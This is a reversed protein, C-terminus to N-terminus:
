FGMTGGEDYDGTITIPWALGNENFRHLNKKIMDLDLRKITFETPLRFLMLLKRYVMFFMIELMRDPLDLDRYLYRLNNYILSGVRDRERRAHYQISKMHLNMTNKIAKGIIREMLKDLRLIKGQFEVEMDTDEDENSELEHYGRMLDMLSSSLELNETENEEYDMDCAWEDDMVFISSFEKSNALIASSEIDHSDVAQNSILEMTERTSYVKINQGNETSTFISHDDLWNLESFLYYVDRMTITEDVIMTMYDKSLNAIVDKFTKYDLGYSNEIINIKYERGILNVSFLIAWKARMQKLTVDMEIKQMTSTGLTFNGLKLQGLNTVSEVSYGKNKFAKLDRLFMNMILTNECEGKLFIRTRVLKRDELIDMMMISAMDCYLYSKFREDDEQIMKTTFFVRESKFNDMIRVDKSYMYTNVLKCAVENTTDSLKIKYIEKTDRAIKASYEAFKDVKMMTVYTTMKKNINEDINVESNDYFVQNPISRSKYLEIINLTASGLDINDTLIEMDDVKTSKRNNKLLNVFSTMPFESHSFRDKILKFIDNCTLLDAKMVNSLSQLAVMTRHGIEKEQQFLIRMLEKEDFTAMKASTYFRMTRIKSHRSVEKRHMSKLMNEMDSTKAMIEEYGIMFDLTCVNNEMTEVSCVFDVFEILTSKVNTNDFSAMEGIASHDRPHIFGGSKTLQLARILSHIAMTEGFEYKRNVSLLYSNMDIDRLNEWKIPSGLMISFKEREAKVLDMNDQSGYFDMKMKKIRKDLRLPLELRFKGTIFDDFLERNTDDVKEEMVVASHLKKYFIKTEKSIKPDFIQIDPGYIMMEVINTVPIFGLHFPISEENCNLTNTIYSIHNNHIKYWRIMNERMIILMNKVTTLYCGNKFARSINSVVSRVAMEPSTLDVVNMSNYVDKVIAMMTRKGNSFLSNFECISPHLATKKWNIHLGALRMINDMVICACTFIPILSNASQARVYGIKTKDDSSLLTTTEYSVVDKTKAFFKKLLHDSYDDIIVHYMNSTYHFMGQGMGSILTVVWDNLEAQRRFWEIDENVESQSMPKKVWKKKLMEPVVIKKNMFSKQTTLFEFKLNDPIDMASTMTMFMEMMMGPAWKSCDANMSFTASVTKDNSNKAKKRKDYMVKQKYDNMGNMQIPVKAKGAALMDKESTSGMYRFFNEMFKAHIRISVSQILIERVNGIQAKSFISFIAEVEKEEWVLRMLNRTQFKEIKRKLTMFSYDREEKEGFKLSKTMFNVSELSSTLMMASDITDNYCKLLVEDVKGKIKEKKFYLNTAAIIVNKDFKFFKDKGKLYDYRDKNNMNGVNMMNEKDELFIKEMKSMKAVIPKMRHDAFGHEKNFLNCYYMEMMIMSFEIEVKPNIISPMYMKDYTPDDMNTKILGDMFITKCKKCMMKCWELQKLKIVCELQSRSEDAVIDDLLKLKNSFITSMGHFLYRNIQLSTSEGRKHSMMMIIPFMIQESLDDFTYRMDTHSEKLTDMMQSYLALARSHVTSLHMIDASTIALWKTSSMNTDHIPYFKHFMSSMSEHTNHNIIIKFNISKDKTLKSGARIVLWYGEYEKMVTYKGKNEESYRRESLYCINEMLDRTTCLAEYLKTTRFRDARYSEFGNPLKLESHVNSTDSFMELLEEWFTIDEEKNIGYGETTYDDDFAFSEIKNAKDFLRTDMQSFPDSFIFMTGDDMMHHFGTELLMILDRGGSGKKKKQTIIPYKFVKQFKKITRVKKAKIMEISILEDVRAEVEGLNVNLVQSMEKSYIQEQCMKETLIDMEEEFLFDSFVECDNMMKNVFRDEKANSTELLTMDKLHNGNYVDEMNISKSELVLRVDLLKRLDHIINAYEVDREHVMMDNLETLSEKYGYLKRIERDLTSMIDYIEKLKDKFESLIDPLWLNDNSCVDMILGDVEVPKDIESSLDRALMSYKSIVEDYRKKVNGTTVKADIIYVKGDTDELVFDPTLKSYKGHYDMAITLDVDEAWDVPNDFNNYVMINSDRLIEYVMNVVNTHRSRFYRDLMKVNVRTGSTVIDEVYATIGTITSLMKDKVKELSRNSLVTMRNMLNMINTGIKMNEQHNNLKTVPFNISMKAMVKYAEEETEIPEFPWINTSQLTNRSMITMVFQTYEEWNLDYKYITFGDKSRVEPFSFFLSDMVTEQYFYEISKGFNLLFDSLNEFKKMLHMFSVSVTLKDLYIKLGDLRLDMREMFKDRIIWVPIYFGYSYVMIKTAYCYFAFNGMQKMVESSIESGNIM